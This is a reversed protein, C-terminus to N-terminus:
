VFELLSLRNILEENYRPYYFRLDEILRKASDHAMGVAFYHGHRMLIKVAVLKM